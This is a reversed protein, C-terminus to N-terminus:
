KRTPGLVSIRGAGGRGGAVKMGTAAWVAFDGVPGFNPRLLVGFSRLEYFASPAIVKRNRLDPIQVACQVCTVRYGFRTALMLHFCGAIYATIAQIIKEVPHNALGAMLLSQLM